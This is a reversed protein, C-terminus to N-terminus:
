ARLPPGRAGLHGVTPGAVGHLSWVRAYLPPRWGILAILVAVLLIVLRAAILCYECCDVGMDHDAHGDKGTPSIDDHPGHAAPTEVTAHHPRDGTTRLALANDSDHLHHNSSRGAQMVANHEVLHTQQGHTAGGCHAIWRSVFPAVVILLMAIIAM